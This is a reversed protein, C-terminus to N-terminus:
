TKSETSGGKYGATTQHHRCLHPPPLPAPIILPIAHATDRGCTLYRLLGTDLTLLLAPNIVPKETAAAMKRLGHTRLHLARSGPPKLFIAAPPRAPSFSQEFDLSNDVQVHFVPASIAETMNYGFWLKNM